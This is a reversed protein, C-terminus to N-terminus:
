PAREKENERGLTPVRPYETWTLFSDVYVSTWNPTQNHLILSVISNLLLGKSPFRLWLTSFQLNCRTESKSVARLDIKRETHANKSNHITKQFALAVTIKIWTERWFDSMVQNEQSKQSSYIIGLAASYLIFIDSLVHANLYNTSYCLVTRQRM